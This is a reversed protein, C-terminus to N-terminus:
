RRRGPERVLDKEEQSTDERRQNLGHEMCNEDVEYVANGEIVLRMREEEM